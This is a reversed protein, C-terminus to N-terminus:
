PLLSCNQVLFVKLTNFVSNNRITSAAMNECYKECVADSLETLNEKDCGFVETCGNSMNM